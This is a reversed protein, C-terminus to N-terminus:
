ARCCSFTFTLLLSLGETADSEAVGHIYDMPNELGSYQLTSSKGEGPPRGLGPISGLDGPLGAVLSVIVVRSVM